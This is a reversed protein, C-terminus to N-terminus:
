PLYENGKVVFNETTVIYEQGEVTTTYYFWHYARLDYYHPEQGM